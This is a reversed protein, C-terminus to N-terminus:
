TPMASARRTSSWWPRTPSRRRMRSSQQFRSGTAALKVVGPPVTGPMNIHIGLLGAPAQVAMVESIIAGWDGGQSVYRPYGLRRMLEDWARAVHAPGWDTGQPKGSFGYGPYTPLVLDFADEARGGYATPDTLPGIVKVLELVSGPWGHTMILPMAGPHPSRVHVFQIDLGDITTVFQPLANLRAEVKRWDYETEWYRVLGQIKDLRVGQSQDGVTEQDPWRTAAIRRRLDVLADDPIAVHFRRISLDETAVKQQAPAATLHLPNLSLAAVAVSTALLAGASTASISM